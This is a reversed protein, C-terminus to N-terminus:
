SNSAPLSGKSMECFVGASAADIIVASSGTFGDEVARCVPVRAADRVLRDDRGMIYSEALVQRGHGDHSRGEGDVTNGFGGLSTFPAPNNGECVM